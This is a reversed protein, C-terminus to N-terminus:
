PSSITVPRTLPSVTSMIESRALYISKERELKKSAKIEEFLQKIELGLEVSLHRVRERFRLYRHCEPIMGALSWSYATVELRSDVVMYYQNEGRSNTEM